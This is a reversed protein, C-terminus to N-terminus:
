ALEAGGDALAPAAEERLKGRQGAGVRLRREVIRSRRLRERAALQVAAVRAAVDDGQVAIEEGQAAAIGGERLLAGIVHVAGHEAVLRQRKSEQTSGVAPGVIRM